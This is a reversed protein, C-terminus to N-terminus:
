VETRAEEVDWTITLVGSDARLTADKPIKVGEKEFIAGFLAETEIITQLYLNAAPKSFTPTLLRGDKLFELAEEATLEVSTQVIPKKFKKM